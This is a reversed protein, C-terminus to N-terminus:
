SVELTATGERRLLVFEIPPSPSFRVRMEQIRALFGGTSRRAWTPSSLPVRVRVAASVVRRRGRRSHGRLFITGATPNSGVHVRSKLGIREATKSVAAYALEAVSPHDARPSEFGSRCPRFTGRRGIAGRAPTTVM